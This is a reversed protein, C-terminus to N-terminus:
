IGPPAFHFANTYVRCTLYKIESFTVSSIYSNRKIGVHNKNLEPSLIIRVRILVLRQNENQQLQM